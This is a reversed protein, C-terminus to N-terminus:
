EEKEVQPPRHGEDRGAVHIGNKGTVKVRYMAADAAQLLGEATDAVDPLTALGISATIRNGLGRDGLFVFRQIRDRLRRAVQQAGEDGTEPLLIAFEDGGFRAVIDTERAAGKIIQAAEILARSGMLHGHIDNIKKFGDLDIFLLSLPWGSRMARKTEKRLAENLYRSNYLQTLDDTVSLAEAREVRLAHALAYAAPEVLVTLADVLENALVPLRRLRGYDIGVLVGAVEGGAVLPWGLMTLEAQPGQGSAVALRQTVYSTTRIAAKGGRIVVDAIESGVGKFAPEIDRDDLRRVVGDAEIAILSWETLPLWERVRSVLANGVSAPDNSANVARMLEGVAETRRSLRVLRPTSSELRTALDVVSPLGLAREVDILRVPTTLHRRFGISRSAELLTPSAGMSYSASPVQDILMTVRSDTSDQPALEWLVGSVARPLAWTSGQWVPVLEIGGIQRLPALHEQVEESRHFVALRLAPATGLAPSVESAEPMDTTARVLVPHSYCASQLSKEASVRHNEYDRPAVCSESIM